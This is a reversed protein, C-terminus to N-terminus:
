NGSLKPQVQFGIQNRFIDDLILRIGRNNQVSVHTVGEVRITRLRNYPQEQVDESLTGDDGMYSVITEKIVGTTTNTDRRVEKVRYTPVVEGEASTSYRFLYKGDTVGNEEARRIYQTSQSYPLYSFQASGLLVSVSVPLDYKWFRWTRLAPFNVYSSSHLAYILLPDRILKTNMTDKPVAMIEMNLFKYIPSALLSYAAIKDIEEVLSGDNYQDIPVSLPSVISGHVVRYISPFNAACQINIIPPITGTQNPANLTSIFNSEPIMDDFAPIYPETRLFNKAITQNIISLISTLISAFDTGQLFPRINSPLNIISNVNSKAVPDSVLYDLRNFVDEFVGEKLARNAKSGQNPTAITIIGGIEPSRNQLRNQQEWTRAILGGMSHGILISTSIDTFTTDSIRATNFQDLAQTRLFPTIESIIKNSLYTPRFGKVYFQQSFLSDYRQWGPSGQEESTFGKLWIIPRKATEQSYAMRSFTCLTFILIFINTKM